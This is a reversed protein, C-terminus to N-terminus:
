ILTCGLAHGMQLAVCRCVGVVLSALWEFRWAWSDTASPSDKTYRATGCYWLGANSLVDTGGGWCGLLGATTATLGKLGWVEDRM